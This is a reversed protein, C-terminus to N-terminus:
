QRVTTPRRALNNTTDTDNAYHLTATNTVTPFAARTVMVTIEFSARRSTGITDTHICSVVQGAATCQWGEGSVSVFRLSDPLTNVVTVPASTARSGTNSVILEYTGNRGVRFSGTSVNALTVDTPAARAPTATAPATAPTRTPTAAPASGPTPTGPSPTGRAPTPSRRSPAKRRIATPRRAVNDSVDDEGAYSLVATNTVSPYAASGIQVTLTLDPSADVEVAAAYRCSVTQGTASCAWGDGAAGVFTVGAPLTDTVVLASNTPQPGLNTARLVYRGNAGVVFPGTTTMTLLLDTTVPTPTPTAGRATPTATPTGPTTVATPTPNETGPKVSTTRATRNNVLNPDGAYDLDFTTTVSPAAAGGVSVALELTVTTAAPVSATTCQVFRVATTCTWGGSGAVFGLGTPLTSSVRVPDDTNAGGGNTVTIRYAGTSGVRFSTATARIALDAETVGHAAPPAIVAAVLLLRAAVRTM